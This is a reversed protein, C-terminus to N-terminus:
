PYNMSAVTLLTGTFHKQCNDATQIQFTWNRTESHKTYKLFHSPPARRSFYFFGKLPFIHPQITQFVIMFKYINEISLFVLFFMQKPTKRPKNYSGAWLVSQVVYYIQLVLHCQQTTKHDQQLENGKLYLRLVGEGWFVSLLIMGEGPRQQLFFPVM